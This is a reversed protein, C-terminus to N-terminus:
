TIIALDVSIKSSICEVQAGFHNAHEEIKHKQELNLGEKSSVELSFLSYKKGEVRLYEGVKLALKISVKANSESSALMLTFMKIFNDADIRIDPVTPDFNRAFVRESGISTTSICLDILSYINVPKHQSQLSSDLKPEVSPTRYLMIGIEDESEYGVCIAFFHFRGFSIDLHTTKFGFSTTAHALAYEFVESTSTSGLLFQASKNLSIVKGSQSFLIFPNYDVEIMREYFSM